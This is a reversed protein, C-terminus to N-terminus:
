NSAVSDSEPIEINAKSSNSKALLKFTLIALTCLLLKNPM